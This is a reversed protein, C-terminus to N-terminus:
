SSIDQNFSIANNFMRFMNTVNSTDWSSIDQNFSGAEYFMIEMDTANSVNWSGINENFKSNHCFIYSLDDLRSVDWKNIPWRYTDAFAETDKAKYMTYKSVASCLEENTEFVMRPSSAKEDITTTCIDQWLRCVPKKQVLTAVDLFSFVHCVTEEPLKMPAEDDRPNFNMM